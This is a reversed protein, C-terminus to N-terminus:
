TTHWTPYMHAYLGLSTWVSAEGGTIETFTRGVLSVFGWPTEVDLLFLGRLSLLILCSM